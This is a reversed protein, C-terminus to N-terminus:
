ARPCTVLGAAPAVSPPRCVTRGAHACFPFHFCHVVGTSCRKTKRPGQRLSGGVLPLPARRGAPAAAYSQGTHDNRSPADIPLGLHLASGFSLSAGYPM